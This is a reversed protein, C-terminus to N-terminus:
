CLYQRHEGARDHAGCWPMISTLDPNDYNLSVYTVDDTVLRRIHDLDTPKVLIRSLV